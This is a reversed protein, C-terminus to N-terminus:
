FKKTENIIRYIKNKNDAFYAYKKTILNKETFSARPLLFITKVGILKAESAIASDLTVIIDMKKLIIPLPYDNVYNIRLNPQHFPFYNEIFSKNTTTPHFRFWFNWENKEIILEKIPKFYFLWKELNQDAILINKKSKKIINIFRNYTNERPIKNKWFNHWPHGIVKIKCGVKNSLVEKEDNSWVYISSPIPSLSKNLDLGKLIKYPIAKNSIVGHQIEITEINMRKSALILGWNLHNYYGILYILKVQSKTLVKKWFKYWLNIEFLDIKIRDKEFRLRVSRSTNKQIINLFLNYNKFKEIKKKRLLITKLYIYYSSLSISNITNISAFLPNKQPDFLISEKKNKNIFFQFFVENYKKNLEVQSVGDTVFLYKYKKNFFSYNLFNKYIFSIWCLHEKIFNLFIRFIRFIIFHSIKNEQKNDVKISDKYYNHLLGCLIPWIKFGQWQWNDVDINKETEQIINYFNKYDM